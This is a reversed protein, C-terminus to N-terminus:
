PITKAASAMACVPRKHCSLPLPHAGIPQTLRSACHERCVCDTHYHHQHVQECSRLSLLISILGHSHPSVDVVCGSRSSCHEGSCCRLPVFPYAHGRGMSWFSCWCQLAGDCSRRAPPSISLTVTTPYRNHNQCSVLEPRRRWVVGFAAALARLTTLVSTLYSQGVERSRPIVDVVAAAPAARLDVAQPMLHRQRESTSAISFFASLGTRTM